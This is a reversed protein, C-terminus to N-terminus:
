MLNLAFQLTTFTPFVTKTDEPFFVLSTSIMASNDMLDTFACLGHLFMPLTCMLQELPVKDGAPKQPTQVATQM